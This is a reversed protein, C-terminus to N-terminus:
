LVSHVSSNGEATFFIANIFIIGCCNERLDSGQMKSSFEPLCLINVSLHFMSNNQVSRSVSWGEPFSVLWIVYVIWFVPSPGSVLRNHQMENEGLIYLSYPSSFDSEFLDFWLIEHTAWFLGVSSSPFFEAGRFRGLIGELRNLERYIKSQM